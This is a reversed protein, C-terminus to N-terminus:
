LAYVLDSPAHADVRLLAGVQAGRLVQEDLIHVYFSMLALAVVIGVWFVAHSRAADRVSKPQQWQIRVNDTPALLTKQEAEHDTM